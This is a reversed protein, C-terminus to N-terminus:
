AGAVAPPRAALRADAADAQRTMDHLMILYRLVSLLAFLWVGLLPRQLLGALGFSLLAILFYGSQALLVARHRDLVFYTVSLPAVVLMVAFLPSYIRMITGSLEWGPGLLWPVLAPLLLAIAVGAGLGLLLLRARTERLAAGLGGKGDRVLTAARGHYVRTLASGLVNLPAFCFRLVVGYQAALAPGFTAELLILPLNYAGANLLSSPAFHSLNARRASLLGRGRRLERCLLGPRLVTMRLLLLASLVYAGTTLWVLTAGDDLGRFGILLALLVALQPLVRALALQGFHESRTALYESTRLLALAATYLALATALPYGLLAAVAWLLLSVPLLLALMASTYPALDAGAVIPLSVEFAGLNISACLAAYALFTTYVGVSEQGALRAMLVLNLAGIAYALATAASLGAAPGLLRRMM